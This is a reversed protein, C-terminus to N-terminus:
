FILKLIKRAYEYITQRYRVCYVQTSYCVCVCVCVCVYMCSTSKPSDSIHWLALTVPSMFKVGSEHHITHVNM